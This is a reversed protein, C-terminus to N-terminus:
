HGCCSRSPFAQSAPSGTESGVADLSQTAQQSEVFFNAQPQSTDDVESVDSFTRKQLYPQDTQPWSPKSRCSTVSHGPKHCHACVHFGRMCKAPTISTSNSCGSAMNFSWCINGEGQLRLTYKKLEEPCSKEARTLKRRKNSNNGSKSAQTFRSAESSCKTQELFPSAVCVYKRGIESQPETRVILSAPLYFAFM